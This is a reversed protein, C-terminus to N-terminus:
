AVFGVYKAREARVREMIHPAETESAENRAIVLADDCSQLAHDGHGGHWQVRARILELCVKGAVTVGSNGIDQIAACFEDYMAFVDPNDIGKEKLANELAKEDIGRERLASTLYEMLDNMSPVEDIHDPSETM